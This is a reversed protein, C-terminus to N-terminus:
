QWLDRDVTCYSNCIWGSENRRQTLLEPDQVLQVPMSKQAHCAIYAPQNANSCHVCDYGHVHLDEVLWRPLQMFVLRLGIYWLVVM